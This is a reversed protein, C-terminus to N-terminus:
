DWRLWARPSAAGSVSAISDAAEDISDDLQSLWDSWAILDLTPTLASRDKGFCAALCTRLEQEVTKRAPLAPREPKAGQASTLTEAILDLRRTAAKGQARVANAATEFPALKSKPFEPLLDQLLSLAMAPPRQLSAWEPVDLKEGRESLATIFAARGRHRAAQLAGGAARRKREDGTLAADLADAAAQYVEAMTRGLQARAGRPWMLFGVVAACVAGLAVTEVRAIDVELGAPKVVSFLVVVMVTFAMQGVSIGWIGGSYAAFFVLPPILWELRAPSDGLSLVVAAAALFGILNGSLAQVATVTTSAASTRLVAAVGLVVWFGHGTPVIKAVLVGLAFATASRLANRFIVGGTDFHTGVVARVRAFGLSASSFQPDADVVDANRGQIQMADVEIWLAMHAFALVPFSTHLSDIAQDVQSEDLAGIRARTQKRYQVLLRDLARTEDRMVGPDAKGRLVDEARRIGEILQAALARDSDRANNAVVQKATASAAVLSEMMHVLAVDRTGMAAPRFPTLAVNSRLDGLEAMLRNLHESSDQGAVWATLAEALTAICDALSNRLKARADRPWLFVGGILAVLGGFTWAMLRDSLGIAEIPIFVACAYALALPAVFAPAYGGFATSFVATFMLIFMGVIAWGVTGALLSGVLVLLATLVISAAYACARQGRPGGFDGFVLHSFCSLFGLAAALPQDLIHQLLFFTAPALIFARIAKRLNIRDPDHISVFPWKESLVSM